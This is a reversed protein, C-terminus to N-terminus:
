DVAGHIGSDPDDRYWGLLRSVLRQRLPTPVQEATYEGLALILARRISVDKEKELRAVLAEATVGAPALRHILRSRAEPYSNHKLLPWCGEAHGLRLLALGASARRRALAPRAVETVGPGARRKVEGLLLPIARRRDRGLAPVLTAFQRDDAELVLETLTETRDGAYDALISAAVLGHGKLRKGKFVETLPGLLSDRAPRLAETWVGLSLPDASLWPELAGAAATRWGAGRPDFAALAALIRLRRAPATGPQELRRWLDDRLEEAHPRLAARVVLLETPDAVELMWDSLEDRVSTGPVVALLALAARM